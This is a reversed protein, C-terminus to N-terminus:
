INFDSFAGRHDSQVKSDYADKICKAKAEVAVAQNERGLARWVKVLDAFQWTEDEMLGEARTALRESEATNGCDCALKSLTCMEHFTPATANAEARAILEGAERKKGLHLNAEIALEYYRFRYLNSILCGTQRGALQDPKHEIINL